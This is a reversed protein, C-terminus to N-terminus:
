LLLLMFAVWEANWIANFKMQKASVLDGTSHVSHPIEPFIPKLMGVEIM